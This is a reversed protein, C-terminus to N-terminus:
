NLFRRNFNLYAIRGPFAGSMRRLRRILSQGNPPQTFHRRFYTTINNFEALGFYNSTRSPCEM